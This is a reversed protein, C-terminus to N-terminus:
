DNHVDSGFKMLALQLSMLINAGLKKWIVDHPVTGPGCDIAKLQKGSELDWIRIHSDLSSSAAVTQMM